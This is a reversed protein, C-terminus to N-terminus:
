PNMGFTRLRKKRMRKRVKMPINIGVMKLAKKVMPVVAMLVRMLFWNVDSVEMAQVSENFDRMAANPEYGGSSHDEFNLAVNFDGLLVWPRNQMLGAHGVLNSWLAHRDIYYNDVYVFSRFLTKNDAHTNVQVHMVQNTQAMIMVDVLDDNWGVIIRSGKSCISRNSTWKWRSCVKKCTDYVAAVDVHSELIACVSLNNENVVQRVEKKKPIRNLGRINWSAVSFMLFQIL